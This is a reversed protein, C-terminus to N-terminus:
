DSVHAQHYRIFDERSFDPLEGYEDLLLRIIAASRAQTSLSKAPNFEIDTFHDFDAIKRIDEPSLSDKVAAIYLYDYFVTKPFLPFDQGQFRFGTLVGSERLRRDRKAEKPPVQLLDPYPGGDAFVKASQFVNELPFRGLRLRFASLSVGLPVLSKTSVELPRAGPDSELIARHLSAVSKQKQSLSFGPFWAFAYPRRIVKGQHLSFAPREAM